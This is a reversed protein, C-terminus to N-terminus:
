DERLIFEAVSYTNRPHTPSPYVVPDIILGSQAGCNILDRAFAYAKGESTFGKHVKHLQATTM